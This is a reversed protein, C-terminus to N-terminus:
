LFASQFVFYLAPFPIDLKKKAKKQFHSNSVNEEDQGGPLVLLFDM